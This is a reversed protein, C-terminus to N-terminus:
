WSSGTSTRQAASCSSAAFRPWSPSGCAWAALYSLSVGGRERPSSVRSLYGHSDRLPLHRAAVGAVATRLPLRLHGVQDPALAALLRPQLVGGAAVATGVPPTLDELDSPRTV